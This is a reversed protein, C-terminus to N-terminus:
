DVESLRLDIVLPVHDSGVREGYEFNVVDWESSVFIHDLCFRILRNLYFTKSLDFRGRVIKTETRRAMERMMFSAPPTNFDGAVILPFEGRAEAVEIVDGNQARHLDGWRPSPPWPHAGVFTVTEGDLDLDVDFIPIRTDAARHVTAAEIPVRSYLALGMTRRSPEIVTHPYDQFERELEARIPNAYEMWFILDPDYRRVEAVIEDLQRNDYYMNFVMIRLDREGGAAISNVRPFALLYATGLLLVALGVGFGVWSRRLLYVIVLILLPVLLYDLFTAFLDGWWSWRGTLSVLVSIILISFLIHVVRM